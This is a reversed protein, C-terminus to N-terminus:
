QNILKIKTNSLIVDGMVYKLLAKWYNFLTFNKM